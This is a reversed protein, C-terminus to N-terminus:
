VPMVTVSGHQGAYKKIVSLNHPELEPAKQEAMTYSHTTISESKVGKKPNSYYTVMDSWVYLLDKPIDDTNDWLWDADVAIQVCEQCACVCVCEQCREIYKAWGERGYDVRLQGETLTRMTVGRPNEASDGPRIHVLKVKHLVTFPDVHIYPDLSNYKFLRYSGVVEDPDNLNETDVDPCSCETQSKGLENYLNTTVNEHNLTFGLMTELMSQTRDIQAQVFDVRGSPVTVGSLQQYTSFDM